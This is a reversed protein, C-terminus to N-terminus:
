LRRCSTQGLNSVLTLENVRNSTVANSMKGSGHGDTYSATAKLYYTHDDYTPTYTDSTAGTGTAPSYGSDRSLSRSWQWSTTNSTVTDDDSLTAM